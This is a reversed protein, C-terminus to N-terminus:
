VLSFQNDFTAKTNSNNSDSTAENTSKILSLPQSESNSILSKETNNTNNVAERNLHEEVVIAQTPTNVHEVNSRQDESAEFQNDPRRKRM